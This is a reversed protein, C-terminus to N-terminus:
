NAPKAHKKNPRLLDLHSVGLAVALEYVTFQDASPTLAADRVRILSITKRVNWGRVALVGVSGVRLEEDVAFRSCAAIGYGRKVALKIAEWSPLELRRQPVIGLNALATDSAARTASGEERSIWTL